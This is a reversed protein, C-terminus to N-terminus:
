RPQIGPMRDMMLFVDAYFATNVMERVDQIDASLHQLNIGVNFANEIKGTASGAPDYYSIGGPLLDANKIGSPVLIPPDTMYDIGKLKQRHEHQLQRIGGLARMGPCSTGYVDNGSVVWRPAVVPFRRYGGEYMVQEHTAGTEIILNRWAMNGKDLKSPDRHERPEILQQVKVWPELEHRDYLNKIASSVRSWDWTGSKENLPRGGAVYEKVIQGITMELERGLTDVENKGNTALTYEGITMPTHHIVSKFDPLVISAAVGFAGQEEYMSHLARYTNSQAFVRLIRLTVDSCWKSVNPSEMLDPDATEVRFWPRAPSTQGYMMGAALIGLAGTATDDLIDNRRSGRNEQTTFFRGVRPLLIEQIDAWH